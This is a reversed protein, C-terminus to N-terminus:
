LQSTIITKLRKEDGKILVTYQSEVVLVLLNM